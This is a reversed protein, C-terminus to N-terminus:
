HGKIFKNYIKKIILEIEPRLLMFDNDLIRKRFHIKVLPAGPSIFAGVYPVGCCITFEDRNKCDNLSFGSRVHEVDNDRYVYVGPKISREIKIDKGELNHLIVQSGDFSDFVSGKYKFNNKIAGAFELLHFFVLPARNMEIEQLTLLSTSNQFRPNIEVPYVDGDSVLFDIGMMGRFGSNRMWNMLNTIMFQMENRIDKSIFKVASFDNGAFGFEGEILSKIGIIQMSPASIINEREGIVANINVSFGKMFKEAIVPEAKYITKIKNYTDANSILYTKSGSSASPYKLVLKNGYNEKLYDYNVENMRIIEGPIAKLGIEFIKERFLIKNDFFNKLKVPASLIRIKKNKSSLKELENISRYMICNSGNKLKEIIEEKLNSKLFNNIDNNSYNKRISNLKELSTVKDNWLEKIDEGWDCCIIYDFDILYNLGLADHARQGWWSWKNNKLIKKIENIINM